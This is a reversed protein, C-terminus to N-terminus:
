TIVSCIYFALTLVTGTPESSLDGQSTIYDLFQYTIGGHSTHSGDQM